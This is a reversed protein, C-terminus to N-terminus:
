KQSRLEEIRSLLFKEKADQHKIAEEIQTVQNQIKQLENKSLHPSQAEDKGVALAVKQQLRAARVSFLLSNLEAIEYSVPVTGDEVFVLMQDQHFNIDGAPKNVALFKNAKDIDHNLNFAHVQLM